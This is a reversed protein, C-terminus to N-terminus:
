SGDEPGEDDDVQSADHRACGCQGPEGGHCRGDACDGCTGDDTDEDEDAPPNLAADLLEAAGNYALASLYRGGAKEAVELGRMTALVELMARRTPQPERFVAELRDMVAEQEDEALGELEDELMESLGMRDHALDAISDAIAKEAVTQLQEDTLSM